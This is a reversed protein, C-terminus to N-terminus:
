ASSERRRRPEFVCGSAWSGYLKAQLDWAGIGKASVIAGLAGAVRLADKPRNTLWLRVLDMVYATAVGFPRGLEQARQLGLATHRAASEVEGLAVLPLALQSHVVGLPDYGIAVRHVEAWREDDLTLAHELHARAAAFSGLYFETFGIWRHANAVLSKRNSDEGERLGGEAIALAAPYQGSMLAQLWRGYFTTLQETEELRVANTGDMRDLAAQTAAATHGETIM